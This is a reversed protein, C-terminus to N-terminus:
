LYKNGKAIKNLDFLVKYILDNNRPGPGVEFTESPYAREIKIVDKPRKDFYPGINIIPNPHSVSSLSTWFAGKYCRVGNAVIVFSKGHVGTDKKNPIKKIGDNSLIMEHKGWDYRIIDSDTILPTKHLEIKNLDENDNEVLYIEFTPRNPAGSSLACFVILLFIATNIITKM